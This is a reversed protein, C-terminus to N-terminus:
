PNLLPEAPSATLRGATLVKVMIERSFVPVSGNM